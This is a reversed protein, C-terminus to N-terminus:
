VRPSTMALVLSAVQMQAPSVEAHQNRDEVEPLQMIKLEAVSLRGRCLSSNTM